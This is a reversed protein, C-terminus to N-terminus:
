GLYLACFSSLIASLARNLSFVLIVVGGIMLIITIGCVVPWEGQGVRSGEADCCDHRSAHVMPWRHISRYQCWWGYRYPHRGGPFRPFNLSISFNITVVSSRSQRDTTSNFGCFQFILFYVEIAKIMGVHSAGKAGGGGLVLGISMGTLWRALRSFDSHINSETELVKAYLENQLYFWCLNPFSSTM